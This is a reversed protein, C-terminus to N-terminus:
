RYKEGSAKPFFRWRYNLKKVVEIVAPAYESITKITNGEIRIEIKKKNFNEPFITNKELEKELEKDESNLDSSKLLEKLKFYENQTLSFKELFERIEKNILRVPIHLIESKSYGEIYIDWHLLKNGDQAVDYMFNARDILLEALQETIVGQRLAKATYKIRELEALDKNKYQALINFSLEELMKLIENKNIKVIDM